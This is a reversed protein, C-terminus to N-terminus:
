SNNQADLLERYKGPTIGEYKKFTRIFITSNLFGVMESIDKIKLDFDKLFVKAKELRIKNITNLIGDGTHEKYFRSLYVPNLDFESAISAVSLNHDFYHSEIYANIDKIKSSCTTKKKAHNYSEIEGLIFEMQKQMEFVTKCQILRQMPNLNELFSSDVETYIDDIANVMTNIIAFLLCRAMDLSINSNLINRKFIQDMVQKAQIFDNARISNIFQQQIEIPYANSFSRNEYAHIDRFLIINNIGVILKYEAAELCERYANPIEDLSHINSVSATFIIHFKDMIFEKGSIIINKIEDLVDVSRDGSKAPNVLCAVAQDVEFFSSNYEKSILEEMINSIIFNALEIANEENDDEEPSYVCGLEELYFLILVFNEGKFEIGYSMCIDDLSIRNMIYGKVLKNLFDNKLIPKQKELTSAISRNENIIDLMSDEIIKLENLKNDFKLKGSKSFLQLLNDIPNYNKRAFLFAAIIGGAICVTTCLLIINIVDKAKGSFVSRPIITIYRWDVVDSKIYVLEAELSNSKFPKIGYNNEVILDSVDFDIDKKLAAVIENSGNIIISNSEPIGNFSSLSNELFTSSLVIGLVAYDKQRTDYTISQLFVIGGMDPKDINLSSMPCFEKVHKDKLFSKWEQMDKIKGPYYINFYEDAECTGNGSAVINRNPYYIFIDSIHSNAIECAKITNIGYYLSLHYIPNGSQSNINKDLMITTKIKEIDSLKADVTQRLQKLMALYSEDIETKIVNISQIYAVSSILLSILIILLYSYLWSFFLRRKEKLYKIIMSM